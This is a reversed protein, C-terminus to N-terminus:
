YGYYLSCQCRHGTAQCLYAAMAAVAEIKVEGHRFHDDGSISSSSSDSSGSYTVAPTESPASATARLWENNPNPNPNNNANHIANVGGCRGRSLHVNRATSRTFTQDCYPCQYRRASLGRSQEKQHRVLNGISSFRRGDCGHDFCRLDQPWASASAQPANQRQQQEVFQDAPPALSELASGPATYNTFMHQDDAQSVTAAPMAGGNIHNSGFAHSTGDGGWAMEAATSASGVNINANAWTWDTMSTATVPLWVGGGNIAYMPQGSALPMAFPGDTDALAITAAGLCSRVGPTTPQQAPM